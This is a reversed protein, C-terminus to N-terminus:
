PRRVLVSDFTVEADETYLGVRGDVYPQESDTHTTLFEGNAWVTVTAGVQRVRVTHQVGVPFLPLVGTALFRQSGPYAPDEKGLEWGNPKLALSYFHQDDNYHWLIWGVEWPNPTGARLQRVTRLRVTLDIDGFGIASTVLGGHTVEPGQASNPSLSLARGGEKIVQTRGYGDYDAQWQGYREGDLWQQGARHTEFNEVLMLNDAPATIQVDDPGPQRVVGVLTVALLACIAAYGWAVRLPSRGSPPEPRTAESAVPRKGSHHSV